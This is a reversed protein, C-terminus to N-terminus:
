FRFLGTSAWSAEPPDLCLCDRCMGGAVGTKLVPLIASIVRRDDVQPKRPLGQPLHPEIAAWTVDSLWVLHAM